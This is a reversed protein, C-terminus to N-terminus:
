RVGGEGLGGFLYVVGDEEFLAVFYEVAVSSVYDDCGMWLVWGAMRDMRGDAMM